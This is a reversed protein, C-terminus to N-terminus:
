RELLNLLNTLQNTVNVTEALKFLSHHEKKLFKLKSQLEELNTMMKHSLSELNEDGDSLNTMSSIFLHNKEVIDCAHHILKDSEKGLSRVSIEFSKLFKLLHKVYLQLYQQNEVIKEVNSQVLSKIQSANDRLSILKKFNSLTSSDDINVTSPLTQCSIKGTPEWTM